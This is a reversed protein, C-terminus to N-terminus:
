KSETKPKKKHKKSHKIEFSTPKSRYLEDITILARVQYRGPAYKKNQITLTHGNAGKIKKWSSWKSKEKIKSSVRKRIQWQITPKLGTSIIFNIKIQTEGNSGGGSVIKPSGIIRFPSSNDDTIFGKFDCVQEINENFEVDCFPPEFYFGAKQPVITIIKEHFLEILYKGLSDSYFTGEVTSFLVDSLPENNLNSIVGSIRNFKRNLVPNITSDSTFNIESNGDFTYGRKNFNIKCSSGSPLGIFSFKGQSDSSQNEIVFEGLAHTCSLHLSVGDVIEGLDDRVIGSLVVGAGEMAIFNFVTIPAAPSINGVPPFFHYNLPQPILYYKSGIQANRFRYFGDLTSESKGDEIEGKLGPSAHITVGVIGKESTLGSDHTLSRVKGTIWQKGEEAQFVRSENHTIAKIFFQNPVLEFSTHIARIAVDNGIPVDMFREGFGERESVPIDNIFYSVDELEKGAYLTGLSVRAYGPLSSESDDALLFSINSIDSTAELVIESPAFKRGSSQVSITSLPKISSVVSFSGDPSSIGYKEGDIIINVAGIGTQGDLIKGSINIFKRDRHKSAFEMVRNLSAAEDAKGEIGSPVGDFSIESNSFYNIYRGNIDDEDLYSMITALLFNGVEFRNGHSDKYAGGGVSHKKDHDLGLNHGIEHALVRAGCAGLSDGGFLSSMINFTIDSAWSPTGPKPIWGIGCLAKVGNGSKVKLYDDELLTVIDAGLENRLKHVEDWTGDITTLSNLDAAAFGSGVQSLGHVGVIRLRGEVKSNKFINNVQDVMSYVYVEVLERSKAAAIVDPTYFVLLDLEPVNSSMEMSSAELEFQSSSSSVALTDNFEIKLSQQNSLNNKNLPIPTPEPRDNGDLEESGCFGVGQLSTVKLAKNTISVHHESGLIYIDSNLQEGIQNLVIHGEPPPRVTNNSIAAAESINSVAYLDGNVSVLEEQNHTMRTSMGSTLILFKKQIPSPLTIVIYNDGPNQNPFSSKLDIKKIRHKNGSSKGTYRALEVFDQASTLDILIFPILLLIVLWKIRSIFLGSFSRVAM